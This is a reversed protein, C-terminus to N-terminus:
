PFLVVIIECTIRAVDAVPPYSDQPYIVILTRFLGFALAVITTLIILHKIGFQNARYDTPINLEFSQTMQWHFFRRVLLLIITAVIFLIIFVMM